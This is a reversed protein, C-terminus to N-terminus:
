VLPSPTLERQHTVFIEASASIERVGARPKQRESREFLFMV